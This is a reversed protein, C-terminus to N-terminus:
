FQKELTTDLAREQPLTVMGQDLWLLQNLGLHSRDAGPLERVKRAAEKPAEEVVHWRGATKKELTTRGDARKSFVKTVCYREGAAEFEVAVRPPGAGNWPLCNKLEARATDHDYDFLC